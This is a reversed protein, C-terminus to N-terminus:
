KYWGISVKGTVTNEWIQLTANKIITEKDYINADVKPKKLERIEKEAKEWKAIVYLSLICSFSTVIVCIVNITM